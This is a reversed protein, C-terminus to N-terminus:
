EIPTEPSNGWQSWSGAYGRVRPYGLHKLMVYSHSSRHHTHCYTIIEKGADLGRADLLARLEADGKLRLNRQRDVTDLWNLNRAGPIHGGRLARVNVGAFEEPTRADLLAVTPDDLHALVYAMDAVAQAGPRARYDSPARREIDRSVPHGENIWAHVGGNLVAARRHGLVHLTWLLRCAKGGGEDDYAVVHDQPGIGLASFLGSLRAPSPLLGPAPPAGGLLGGYELHVAGPIHAVAYHACLDVVVVDARGLLAELEDPELLVPSAPPAM